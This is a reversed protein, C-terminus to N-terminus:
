GRRDYKDPRRAMDYRDQARGRQKKEPKKPLRAAAKEQLGQIMQQASGTSPIHLQAGGRHGMPPMPAPGTPAPPAGGGGMSKQMLNVAGLFDKNQVAALVKDTM